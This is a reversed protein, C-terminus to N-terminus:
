DSWLEHYALHALRSTRDEIDSINWSVPRNRQIKQILAKTSLVGTQGLAELKREIGYNRASANFGQGVLVLNGIHHVFEEWNEGRDPWYEGPEQPLIHEISISEQIPRETYNQPHEHRELRSLISRILRKRKNSSGYSTKHVFNQSFEDFGPMREDLHAEIGSLNSQLRAEWNNEGVLREIAVARESYFKEVVNAPRSAIAHYKFNFNEIKKVVKLFSRDSLELRDRNRYLSLLLVYCQSFGMKSISALSSNLEHLTRTGTPNPIEGSILRNIRQSDQTLRDLYRGWDAEEIGEKVSRYLKSSTTFEKSSIWQYRLFKGLDFGVSELNEKMQGWSSEARDEHGSAQVNKFVLNKLLDTASLAVGTANVTEFIRYADFETDVEIKIISLARVREELEILKGLKEEPAKRSLLDGIREKFWSYNQKVRKHEKTQAITRVRPLTQVSKRFYESLRPTPQIIVSGGRMSSQQFIGTKHAAHAAETEGLDDAIDRIAAYLITITLMRQQGDIVEVRENRSEPKKLVISGFFFEEDTLLDNWFEELNEKTWSYERQYRPIIYRTGSTGWLSGINANVASFSM